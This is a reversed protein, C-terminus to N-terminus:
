IQVAGRLKTALSTLMLTKNKNKNTDELLATVADYLDILQKKSLYAELEAAEEPALSQGEIEKAKVGTKKVLADRVMIALESLTDIFEQGGGDLSSSAEIIDFENPSVVANSIAKATELAKQSTQRNGDKGTIDFMTVRSIVTPIVVSKSSSTLIFSSYLAPEELVKLLLNQCEINMNQLEKIIIVKIDSENPTVYTDSVLNKVDEKVYFRRDSPKEYVHIDPHTNNASKICSACVTCPKEGGGKCVIFNALFSALIQRERESGGSILIAHNLAGKETLSLLKKKTSDSIGLTNIM